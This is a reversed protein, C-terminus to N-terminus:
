LPIYIYHSQGAGPLMPLSGTSGRTSLQRWDMPSDSSLVRAPSLDQGTHGLGTMNGITLGGM